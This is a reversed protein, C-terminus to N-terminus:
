FEAGIAVYVQAPQRGFLGGDHVPAALGVRFAYPADWALVAATMTLEAGASAISLRQTLTPSTCVQRGTQASPCWASGYDGFLTLYSRDFFLPLTGPGSGPVILPVRYEATATLARTGILTGPAFGRVAFTRRGDGLTYGPVVQFTSSSVGGVSFYGNSALDEIGTAVRLAAVHHAPGPLDLSKFGAATAVLSTTQRSGGLVDNGEGARLRDRVTANLQVGDEPSISFPPRQYNAFGASVQVGPYRLPGLVGITDLQALLPPPDSVRDRADLTLGTSFAFSARARQRLWTADLEASRQRERLAGVVAGTSRAVVSGLSVWDQAAFLSIVPVGLGAWQYSFNGVVGTNRTPFAISASYANRGIVDAASTTAGIRYEGAIGQDFTPLWYRPVLNRWPSFLRPPSSDVVLPSADAAPLTDLYAPVRTAWGSADGVGGVPAVGLHYGDSRFLVSALQGGQRSAQPEFLGTGARSLLYDDNADPGTLAHYYVQTEGTRDSSYYIGSDAPSWSPTAQISHGSAVVRLLAGATDLVVIQSVNGRLWRVAAIRAGDHSWRPETWQEDYSGRTLGVISRGDPSLRVLRTSGSVIQEAVIAGDNRADPDAIRAGHTLQREHGRIQEWLDSREQYPTTFDLQSYLLGGGPLPANASQSNRRGVRRREGDLNVRWAGFTERGPAGSYVIASDGLWRPAFVYVGDTTLTRWGQMPLPPVNAVSAVVSDSWRRWAASFGTGFAAHAPVDIFYPLLEASSKEVFTRISGPGHTRALWDIFLSGYAYATEGFPYRPAALSWADPRPFAHDIAAARAIMRHESGEIRGAGALRSEEYVALGEVLWSPDYSNPFLMAARGFVHQGLAWIGRSRDLHFIHTLEHTIAMQGWDNTYRLASEDVPPTAYVVIRNTPYPTASGNSFDVDDSIVIDIPGRPPHLQQSLEAYAREADAAIRRALPEVPPTFHVYFHQTAITEWHLNPSQAGGAHAGLGIALLACALRRM